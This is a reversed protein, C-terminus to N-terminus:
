ARLNTNVLTKQRAKDNDHGHIHTESKRHYQKQIQTKMDTHKHEQTITKKCRHKENRAVWCQELAWGTWRPYLDRRCGPAELLINDRKMTAMPFRLLKTVDTFASSQDPKTVRRDLPRVTCSRCGATWVHTGRCSEAAGEWWHLRRTRLQRVRGWVFVRSYM